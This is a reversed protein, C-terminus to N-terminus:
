DLLTVFTEYAQIGNGSDVTISVTYAGPDLREDLLPTRFSYTFTGLPIYCGPSACSEQIDLIQVNGPTTVTATFGAVFNGASSRGTPGPESEVILGIALPQGLADFSWTTPEGLALTRPEGAVTQVRRAAMTVDPGSVRVTEDADVLITFLGAPADAPVTFAFPAVLTRVMVGAPDLIALQRLGDGKVELADLPTLRLSAPIGPVLLAARVTSRVEVRATQPEPQPPFQIFQLVRLTVSGSEGRVLLASLGSSGPDGSAELQDVDQLELFIGTGAGTSALKATLEVPANPPVLPTLDFDQVANGVCVPLCADTAQFTAEFTATAEFDGSAFHIEHNANAPAPATTPEM